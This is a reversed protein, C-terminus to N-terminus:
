KELNPDDAGYYRRQATERRHEYNEKTNHAHRGDDAIEVVNQQGGKGHKHQDCDVGDDATRPFGSSSLGM